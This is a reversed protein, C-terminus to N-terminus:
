ISSQAVDIEKFLTQCFRQIKNISADRIEIFLENSSLAYRCNADTHFGKVNFNLFVLEGRQIFAPQIEVREAQEWDFAYVEEVL